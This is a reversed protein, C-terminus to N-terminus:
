QDNIKCQMNQLFSFFFMKTKMRSLEYTSTINQRVDHDPDLWPSQTSSEHVAAV